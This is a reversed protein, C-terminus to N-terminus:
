IDFFQKKVFVHSKLLKDNFKKNSLVSLFFTKKDNNSLTSITRFSFLKKNILYNLTRTMQM